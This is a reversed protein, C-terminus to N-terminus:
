RALLAKRVEEQPLGGVGFQDKEVREPGIEVPAMQPVRALDVGAAVAPEAAGHRIGDRDRAAGPGLRPGRARCLRRGRAQTVLHGHCGSRSSRARTQGSVPTVGRLRRGPRWALARARSRGRGEDVPGHPGPARYVPSAPGHGLVRARGEARRGPRGADIRGPGLVLVTRAFPGARRHPGPAPCALMTERASFVNVVAVRGCRSERAAARWKKAVLRLSQAYSGLYQPLNSSGTRHFRVRPHNRDGAYQHPKASGNVVPYNPPILAGRPPESLQRTRARPFRAPM